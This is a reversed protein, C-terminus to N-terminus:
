SINKWTLSGLVSSVATLGTQRDIQKKKGKLVHFLKELSPFYKQFELFCVQLDSM